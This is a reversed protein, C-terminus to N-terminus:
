KYTFADVVEENRVMVKVNRGDPLTARYVKGGRKVVYPSECHDVVYRVQDDDLNSKDM